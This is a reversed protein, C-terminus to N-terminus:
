SDRRNRKQFRASLAFTPISFTPQRAGRKRPEETVNLDDPASEQSPLSQVPVKVQPNVFPTKWMGWWTQWSLDAFEELGFVLTSPDSRMRFTRALRDWISFVTAYNSDTEPRWDSHHVKHMNPTVIFIRLWRDLWGLSIDAHHLQTIAIVLTDYALLNWIDFGLLPILGLRLMRAGIHEGLHFRTATTVDMHRESHHMRHFRWLLPIAHNARHWLYMWGDLLVLALAFRWPEGVSLVSLLGLQNDETWNAVATTASGFALGLVVTNIVAIALNNAAHRWRGERQGFFPQLREWCWFLALLLIPVSSRILVSDLGSIKTSALLASQM